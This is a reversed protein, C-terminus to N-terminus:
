EGLIRVTRGNLGAYICIFPISVTKKSGHSYIDIAGIAWALFIVILVAHADLKGSFAVALAILAIVGQVIANGLLKAALSRPKKDM